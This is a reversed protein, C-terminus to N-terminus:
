QHFLFMRFTKDLETGANGPAVYVFDVKPSKTLSWAQAHERGGSGVVLANIKTMSNTGSIVCPLLYWPSITHEDASKVVEDDRMSGGPQIIAAIGREAASDIGDRFPFFADSAM